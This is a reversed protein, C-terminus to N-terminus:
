MRTYHVKHLLIRYIQKLDRTQPVIFYLITHTFNLKMDNTLKAHWSFPFNNLSIYIYRRFTSSYFYTLIIKVFLYATCLYIYYEYCEFHLIFTTSFCLFIPMFEFCRLSIVTRTSFIYNCSRGTAVQHNCVRQKILM